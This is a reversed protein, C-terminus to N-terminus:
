LSKFAYGPVVTFVAASPNVTYFASLRKISITYSPIYSSPAIVKDTVVGKSTEDKGNRALLESILIVTAPEIQLPLLM